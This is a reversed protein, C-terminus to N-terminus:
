EVDTASSSTPSPSADIDELLPALVREIDDLILNASIVSGQLWTDGKVIALRGEEVPELSKWLENDEFTSNGEDDDYRPWFLIGDVQNLEGLYELSFALQGSVPNLKAGAFDRPGLLLGLEAFIPGPFSQDPGDIRAGGDYTSIVCFTRDVLPAFRETLTAVRAEYEDILEEAKARRNLVDAVFRLDTKWAGFGERQTGITPAIQDLQKELGDEFFASWGLILDPNVAAIKEANAPYSEGTDVVSDALLELVQPPPEATIPAGAPQVGLAVVHELTVAQDIVVLREINLPVQSSGFAHFVEKTTPASATPEAGADPDDDDGACGGLLLAGTVAAGSGLFRRRTLEASIELLLEDAITEPRDLMITM